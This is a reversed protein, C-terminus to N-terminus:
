VRKELIAPNEVIADAVLSEHSRNFARRAEVPMGALIADLDDIVDLRKWVDMQAAAEQADDLTLVTRPIYNTSIDLVQHNEIQAHSM